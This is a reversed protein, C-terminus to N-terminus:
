EEWGKDLPGPIWIVDDWIYPAVIGQSSNFDIVTIWVSNADWFGYVGEDFEHLQGDTGDDVRSLADDEGMIIQEGDDMLWMSGADSPIIIVMFLIVLVVLGNKVLKM